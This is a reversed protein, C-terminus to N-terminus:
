NMKGLDEKTDWEKDMLASNSFSFLCITLIIVCIVSEITEQM